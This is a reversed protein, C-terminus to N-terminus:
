GFFAHEGRRYYTVVGDDVQIRKSELYEADRLDTVASRVRRETVDMPAVDVDEAGDAEDDWTDTEPPVVTGGDVLLGHLEEVTYARPEVADLFEAVAREVDDWQKGSEWEDESIPM